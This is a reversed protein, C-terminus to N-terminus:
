IEPSIRAMLDSLSHIRKIDHPLKVKEIDQGGQNRLLLVSNWGAQLAGKYDNKLDDGVHVFDLDSEDAELKQMAMSKAADYIQRDPKEAGVDHSMIVFDVDAEEQKQDSYPQLNNDSGDRRTDVTVGLSRLVGPVRDDSNTIVGVM